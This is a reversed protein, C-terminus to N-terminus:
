AMGVAMTINDKNVAMLRLLVRLWGYYEWGTYGTYWKDMTSEVMRTGGVSDEAMSGASEVSWVRQLGYEGGGGFESEGWHGEAMSEVEAM